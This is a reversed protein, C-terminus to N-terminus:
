GPRHQSGEGRNIYDKTPLIVELSRNVSEPLLVMNLSKHFNFLFVYIFSKHHSELGNINEETGKRRHSDPSNISVGVEFCSRM